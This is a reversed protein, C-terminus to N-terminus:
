VAGWFCQGFHSYINFWNTFGIKLQLFVKPNVRILMLYYTIGVFYGSVKRMPKWCQKKQKSGKWSRIRTNKDFHVWLFERSIFDESELSQMKLLLELGCFAFDLWDTSAWSNIYVHCANGDMSQLTFANPQRFHLSIWLLETEIQFSRKWRKQQLFLCHMTRRCYSRFLICKEM